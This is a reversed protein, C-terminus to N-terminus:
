HKIFTINDATQFGSTKLENGLAARKERNRETIVVYNPLVKHRKAWSILESGNERGSLYFDIALISINKERLARKASHTDSCYIDAHYFTSTSIALRM